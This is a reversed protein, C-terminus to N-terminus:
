SQNGQHHQAEGVESEDPDTTAGLDEALEIIDEVKGAPTGERGVLDPDAPTDSPAGQGHRAM